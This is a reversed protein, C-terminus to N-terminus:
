YAICIAFCVVTLTGLVDNTVVTIVVIWCRMLERASIAPAFSGDIRLRASVMDTDLDV